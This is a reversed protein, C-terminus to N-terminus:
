SSGVVKNNNNDNSKFYCMNHSFFLESHGAICTHTFLKTIDFSAQIARRRKNFSLLVNLIFNGSFM